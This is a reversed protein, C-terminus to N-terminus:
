SINKLIKLIDEFNECIAIQGNWKMHFEVEDPTLKKQSKPKNGDKLEILYNIGKYGIVLDPFGKGITHTSTISAGPLKRVLEIIQKQNADTRKIM